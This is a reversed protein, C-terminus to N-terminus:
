IKLYFTAGSGLKSRCYVHAGVQEAFYRCLYLGLGTGRVKYVQDDKVRYFKEFIKEHFEPAIGPGNDAVAVVTSKPDPREVYIRITSGNPSYKIANSLFNFVITDIIESNSMVEADAPCDITLLLKKYSIKADFRTVIRDIIHRLKVKQRQPKHAADLVDVSSLQNIGTLYEHFEECSELANSTAQGQKPHASKAQSFIRLKQLIQQNDFTLSAAFANLFKSQVQAVEQKAEATAQEKAYSQLDQRSRDIAGLILTMTSFLMTDALPIFLSFYSFIIGHLYILFAFAAAVIIPAVMAGYRWVWWNLLAFIITQIINLLAPAPRLAHQHLLNETAIATLYTLPAGDRYHNANGQLPTNASTQETTAYKWPKLITYGVLVYKDKLKTVQTPDALLAEAKISPFLENRWYNIAYNQEPDPYLKPNDGAMMAPFMLVQKIGIYGTYPMARVLTNSRKKLTDIGGVRDIIPELVPPFEILSPTKGHLNLTGLLFRSDAQVINIIDNWRPDSYNFTNSFALVGIRKAESGHLITLLRTLNEFTFDKNKDGNTIEQTTNDIDIIVFDEMVQRQPKIRTRLDYFYDEVQYKLPSSYFVYLFLAFAVAVVISFPHKLNHRFRDM